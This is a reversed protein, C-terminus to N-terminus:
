LVMLSGGRELHGETTVMGTLHAEKNLFFSLGLPFRREFRQWFLLLKTKIGKIVALIRNDFGAAFTKLFEGWTSENNQQIRLCNVESDGGRGGLILNNLRLEREFRKM